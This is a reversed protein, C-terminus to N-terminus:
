IKLFQITRASFNTYVQLTYTGNAFRSVDILETTPASNFARKFVLEGSISYINIVAKQSIFSEPFSVEMIERVPNPRLSVDEKNKTEQPTSGISIPRGGDQFVRISINTDGVDFCGDTVDTANPLFSSNAQGGPVLLINGTYAIATLTLLEGTLPTAELEPLTITFNDDPFLVDIITVGDIDFLIYATEYDLFASMNPIFSLSTFQGSAVEIFPAEEGVIAPDEGIVVALEVSVFNESLSFADDSLAVSTIDEGIFAAFNGTFSVGWIRANVIQTPDTTYMISNDDLINTIINNQDTEIYRYDFATSGSTELNVTFIDGVIDTCFIIEDELFENTVVGGRVGAGECFDDSVSIQISNSLCLNDFDALNQNSTLGTPFDEFFLAYIDYIGPPFPNNLVVLAPAISMILGTENVVLFVRNNGGSSLVEIQIIDNLGDSGCVGSSGDLAILGGDNLCESAIICNDETNFIQIPASLAFCGELEDLNTPVIFPENFNLLYINFEGSQAMSFEFEGSTQTAIIEDSNQPTLLYLQSEGSGGNSLITIEDDSSDTTCLSTPNSTSITAPMVDCPEVFCNNEGTINIPNSLAFCGELADVLEGSFIQVASEYNIHYYIQTGVEDIEFITNASLGLIAGNLDTILIANEANGINEIEFTITRSEIDEVCVTAFDVSLVSSEQTCEIVETCNASEESLIEIPLLNSQAFCGSLNDVNAGLLLGSIEEFVIQSISYNGPTLSFTEIEASQSIQLITNETSTLILATENIQNMNADVLVSQTLSNQCIETETLAEINSASVECVPPTIGEHIATVTIANFSLEFCGTSFNNTFVPQGPELLIDGSFSYGWIRYTGEPMGEFDIFPENLFQIVNNFIDTLVYTYDALTSGSNSFDLRNAQGDDTTFLHFPRFNQSFVEGGRVLARDVDIANESLVFCGTSLTESVLMGFNALLQGTYALGYIRCQGSPFNSFDAFSRNNVELIRDQNDVVLFVYPTNQPSISQFFVFDPEGQNLCLFESTQFDGTRIQSVQPSSLNVEIRNSSIQWCASSFKTVYVNDGLRATIDGQYSFGFIYYSGEILNDFGVNSSDHISLIHNNIDTLAYAYQTPAFSTNFVDLGSSLANEMCLSVKSNGNSALVQGGSCQADLEQAGITFLLVLAYFCFSFKILSNNLNYSQITYM